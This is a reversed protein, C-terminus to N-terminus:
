SVSTLISGDMAWHWPVMTEACIVSIDLQKPVRTSIIDPLAWIRSAFGTLTAQTDLQKLSSSLIVLLGSPAIYRLPRHKPVRTSIVLANAEATWNSLSSTHINSDM